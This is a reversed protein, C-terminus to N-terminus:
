KKARQAEIYDREWVIVEKRYTEGDIEIEHAQFWLGQARWGIFAEYGESDGQHSVDMLQIRLYRRTYWSVVGQGKFSFGDKELKQRLAAILEPRHLNPPGAAWLNDGRAFFRDQSPNLLELSVTRDLFFPAAIPEVVWPALGMGVIISTIFSLTRQHPEYARPVFYIWFVALGLGIAVFAVLFSKLVMVDFGRHLLITLAGLCLTAVFLEVLYLHRKM